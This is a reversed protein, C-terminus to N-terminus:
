KSDRMWKAEDRWMSTEENEAKKSQKNKTKNGKTM